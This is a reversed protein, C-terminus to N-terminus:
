RCPVGNGSSVYVMVMYADSMAPLIPLSETTNVM